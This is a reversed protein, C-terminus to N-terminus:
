CLARLDNFFGTAASLGIKKAIMMPVMPSRIHNVTIMVCRNEDGEVNRFVNVGMLIESRMVKGDSNIAEEAQTVARSVILYGNGDELKRAHMLTVFEIPKRVLPPKSASRVVKTISQGFPGDNELDDQLVLVDDRGLSMKNYEHVRSSDMLMEVIKIPAMNIVGEARVTPLDSGYLGHTFNGSWVLVENEDASGRPPVNVVGSRQWVADSWAQSRALVKESPKNPTWMSKNMASEFGSEALADVAFPAVPAHEGEGTDLAVWAEKPDHDVGPPADASPRHYHSHIEEKSDEHGDYPHRVGLDASRMFLTKERLFSVPRIAMDAGAKGVSMIDEKLERGLDKSKSKMAMLLDTGARRHFGGGGGGDYEGLTTDGSFNSMTSWHTGVTSAASPQFAIPGDVPFEGTGLSRAGGYSAARLLPIPEVVVNKGEDIAGFAQKRKKRKFHKALSRPKIKM